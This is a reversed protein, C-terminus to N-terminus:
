QRSPEGTWNSCLSYPMTEACLAVLLLRSSPAQPSLRTQLGLTSHVMASSSLRMCSRCPHADLTRLCCYELRLQTRKRASLRLRESSSADLYADLKQAFHLRSRRKPLAVVATTAEATIRSARRALSCLSSCRVRCFLQQCRTVAAHM